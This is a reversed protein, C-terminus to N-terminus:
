RLVKMAHNCDVLGQPTIVFNELNTSEEVVTGAFIVSSKIAIGHRISVNSGVVCRDLTAATHKDLGPSPKTFLKTIEAQLLNCRLLDAPTTLNIDDVVCNCPRVPSGDGILVQIADTLEYEDRMATRPTRRIADFISLDFLYLGVGKLRNTTHRPKEIVRTAYGESNLMIAYNKRIAEPDNEEKTALVAGGGQQEFMSFMATLDGPQFFIDGLFLLFPRNVHQELQWVAHAIGLMSTQEVYRIRVGLQSGDGFTKAIEYGKHGILMVIDHIGLDRMIELQYQVVPKNCVPLLPKPYSESFPQMRTGKGAALVVGCYKGDLNM